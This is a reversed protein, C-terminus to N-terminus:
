ECLDEASMPSFKPIIVKGGPETIYRDWADKNFRKDPRYIKEKEKSVSGCGECEDESYETHDYVKPFSERVEGTKRNVYVAEEQRLYWM